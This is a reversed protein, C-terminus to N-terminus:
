TPTTATSLPSSPSKLTLNNTFSHLINQLARSTGIAATKRLETEHERRALVLSATPRVAPDLARTRDETMVVHSVAFSPLHQRVFAILCDWADKPLTHLASWFLPEDRTPEQTAPTTRNLLARLPEDANWEASRLRHLIFEMNYAFEGFSTDGIFAAASDVTAVRMRQLARVDAPEVTDEEISEFEHDCM